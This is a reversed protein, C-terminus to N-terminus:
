GGFRNRRRAAALGLRVAVAALLTAFAAAVPVFTGARLAFTAVLFLALAGLLAGAALLRPRRVRLLLAAAV